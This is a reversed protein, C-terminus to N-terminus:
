EVVLIVVNADYYCGEISGRVTIRYNGPVSFAGSGATTVTFTEANSLTAENHLWIISGDEYDDPNSVKISLVPTGPSVEKNISIIAENELLVWTNAGTYRYQLKPAKDRIPDFDLDLGIEKSNEEDPFTILSVPKPCSTFFLPFVALIVGCAWFLATKKM